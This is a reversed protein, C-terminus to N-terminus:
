GIQETTLCGRGGSKEPAARPRILTASSLVRVDQQL